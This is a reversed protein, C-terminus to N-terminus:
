NNITLQQSITIKHPHFIFESYDILDDIGCFNLVIEVLIFVIITYLPKEWKQWIM